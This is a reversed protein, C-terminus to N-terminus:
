GVLGLETARNFIYKNKLLRQRIEHWRKRANVYSIDCIVAIEKQPVGDLNLEYIKRDLESMKEVEQEIIELGEGFTTDFERGVGVGTTTYKRGTEADATNYCGKDTDIVEMPVSSMNKQMSKKLYSMLDNYAITCALGCVNKEEEVYDDKKEYVSITANWAIEDLDDRSVYVSGDPNYSRRVKMFASDHIENFTAGNITEKSSNRNM